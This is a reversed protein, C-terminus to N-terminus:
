RHMLVIVEDRSENLVVVDLDGDGDLDEVARVWGGASFSKPPLFTGDGRGPLVSFDESGVLLDPIGDGDSDTVAGFLPLNDYPLRREPDFTGDGRGMLISLKYDSGVVLDLAGDQDLDGGSVWKPVPAVALRQQAGFTGDGHGLRVSLDNSLHNVAVLDLSGDGDLDLIGLRVPFDGAPLRQEPQLSGDANGLFVTIDDSSGNATVLDARGDRNFDAATVAEPGGSVAVTRLAAFTGDGQGIRWLISGLSTAALDPVGDGNVDAASVSSPFLGAGIRQQPQFTGDDNRLLVSIDASLVNAVALDPTGDGNFDAVAVTEPGDGVTATQPAWFTGDGEGLLVFLEDGSFDAVAADLVGDSELDALVVAAPLLGARFARGPQFTGDGQSLFVILDGASSGVTNGGQSVVTVLLDDDGDGDVDGDAVDRPSRGLPIRLAPLFGGNEDALLVSADESVYNATAVDPRGDRNFDGVTLALPSNGGTPFSKVQNSAGRFIVAVNHGILSLIDPVGDRLLDAVALLRPSGGPSLTTRPLFTGDGRGTLVSLTNTFADATVIDPIGDADLDAAAVSETGNGVGIRTETRFTGNGVGLLVSVTDNGFHGSNASVLDQTGDRDFDAVALSMPDVGVRYEVEPQFSGDGNGILIRVRDSDRDVVAVDVVGDRNFDGAVADIPTFGAFTLPQPFLPREVVKLLIDGVNTTGGLVASVTSSLGRLRVEGDQASAVARTAPPCALIDTLLFRGDGDSLSLQGPRGLVEAKAGAIPVGATRFVRGAVETLDSRLPDCALAVEYGDRAGDGDTDPNAPDTGRAAEAGDALGDGDTDTKLPDSGNLVEYGDTLGDGDTDPKLPDTARDLEDLDNLGDGDTDARLPDTGQVNLETWDDLGDGDTDALRPSTGALFEELNTLGDEDPDEDADAPNQPDLGNTREYDDPLGDQDSDDIALYQGIYLRTIGFADYDHGHGGARYVFYRDAAVGFGVHDDSTIELFSLIARPLPAAPNSVDLIPVGNFFFFDAGIAFRGALTVDVLLGGTDRPATSRVTPNAPDGLDVSTFGAEADAVLAFGPVLVVDRADGTDVSGLLRPAALNRVDVVHLGAAGAAVVALGAQGDVEVGSADGPLALASLLRLSQPNSLDVLRLDGPGDAVFAVNGQVAVDRADGPTDFVSRRVPQRPATVDVVVLGAAGDSVLALGGSVKVDNANGPTDHTAAIVPNSRDAVDVVLLGAAGSAVFAFDGQVDVANAHGPLPLAALATPSFAEVRIEAQAQRGANAVRIFCTGTQGAFVEGSKTGFNCVTLDSSNYASGRTSSTLDIRTGDSLIGTVTLQISAEPLITNYTLIFFDPSVEIGQLTAALNFSDPDLPDSGTAIELGDSFQDGDTDFLLPNTGVEGERGDLLGDDDSDPDFPQLGLQFEDQTSLGDFDPDDLVDLPNNPDLGNALEFDDPLGDGDTDGSLLIQLRLIGLAGDNLSSVLVTGSVLAAVLGDPSVSAIAPNSSLYGTGAAGATIDRTSGDPLTATVTLQVTQGAVTLVTLPSALTLKAPVAVPVDFRIRDVRVARNPLLNFFDSQGSRSNGGEVCTARMRVQGQDAPVNPLVWTGDSQVRASRNLVSVTCGPDLLPAGGSGPSEVVLPDTGRAVELGDPAFDEDTDAKTLDTGLGIERANTLGDRDLDAEADAAFDPDLGHRSELDDALGDGDRDGSSRVLIGVAASAADSIDGYDAIVQADAVALATVQGNSSVTLAQPPFTQYRTSPDATVDRSSGDAFSALVRLQATDGPQLATRSSTMSLAAIAPRDVEARRDTARTGGAALFLVSGAVLTRRLWPLELATV